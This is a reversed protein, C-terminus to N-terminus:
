MLQGPLTGLPLTQLCGILEGSRISKKQREASTFTGHFVCPRSMRGSNFFGAVVSHSLGSSKTCVAWDYPASVSTIGVSLRSVAELPTGHYARNRSPWYLYM